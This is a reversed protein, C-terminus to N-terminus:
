KSPAPAPKPSSAGQPTATTAPQPSSPTTKKNDSPIKLKIFVGPTLAGDASGNSPICTLGMCFEHMPYKCVTTALSMKDLHLRAADPSLTSPLSSAAVIFPDNPKYTVNLEMQRLVDVCANPDVRTANLVPTPLPDAPVLIFYVAFSLFILSGFSFLSGAITNFKRKQEPSAM